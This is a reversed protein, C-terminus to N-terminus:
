WTGIRARKTAQALAALTTWGELCPGEPSSSRTSTISTGSRTTAGATPRRGSTSCTRWEVIQQGTQIGFRIPHTMVSALNRRLIAPADFRRPSVEPGSMPRDAFRRMDQALLPLARARRADAEPGLEMFLDTVWGDVRCIAYHRDHEAAYAHGAADWDSEALLCDRLVRVDRTTLSM